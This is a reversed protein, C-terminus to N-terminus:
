RAKRVLRSAVTSRAHRIRAKFALSGCLRRSTRPTGPGQRVRTAVPGTLVPPRGRLHATLDGRGDNVADIVTTPTLHPNEDSPRRRPDGVPVQAVNNHAFVSYRSVTTTNGKRIRNMLGIDFTQGM